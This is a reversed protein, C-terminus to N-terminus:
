YNNTQDILGRERAQWDFKKWAWVSVFGFFITLGILILMLDSNSFNTFTPFAEAVSGVLARRILELWYSIPMIYGIPRLFAPLVQLPFIAGSFLYLAGAVSDGINFSYQAMRLTVGALLLGLMALMIIGIVVSIILLVWDIKAPEFPIKLFIVGVLMIIFVSFTTIIIRSVGRGLLYFPISIPSVYLYKLTRYHERDDVIAWSVGVMVMGVYQYFANGIFLYAFVPSGFQGQSIVGYMVVLIMAAALPKVISYVAFLFPDTWNSEIKWGLWTAMRFSRWAVSGNPTKSNV